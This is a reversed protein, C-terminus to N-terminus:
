FKELIESVTKQIEGDNDITFHATREYIAKRKEFLKEVGDKISLPRGKKALLSLSRKLYFIKGNQALVTQNEKKIVAGGGTAIVRGGQCVEKLIETELNRFYEEGYKEFIEPISLGAKEVIKADTDIFERNLKQALIKGITTKGSGPMGILVVDTVSRKIKEYIAKIDPMEGNMFLNSAKVGQAVLMMLGGACPLNLSRAEAILRTELPNYVVDLVGKLNPFKILEIPKSNNDPFMGCPSANVIIDTETLAYVNEYNLEGTRSVIKVSKAKKDNAVATITKATAGNGLILVNKNEFDVGASEALTEFGFYDTNYGYLVGNRNVVTNVAGISKAQPSIYDLYPMVTRKYPITVNIGLFPKEKMFIDIECPSIEKLVYEYDGLEAHIKVSYSHGLKEGILGYKM